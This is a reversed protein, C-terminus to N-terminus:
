EWSPSGKLTNIERRIYTIAKELDKITGEVSQDKKGARALYKIANGRVYGLGWGEIVEIPEPKLTAYHAQTTISAPPAALFETDNPPEDNNPYNPVNNKNSVPLVRFRYRGGKMWLSLNEKAEKETCISGTQAYWVRGTSGFPKLEPNAQYIVYNM